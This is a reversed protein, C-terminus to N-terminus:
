LRVTAPEPMAAGPGSTTVTGYDVVGVGYITSVQNRALDTGLGTVILDEASTDSDTPELYATGLSLSTVAGPKIIASFSLLDSLGFKFQATGNYAAL